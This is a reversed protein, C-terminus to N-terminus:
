FSSGSLLGPPINGAGVVLNRERMGQTICGPGVTDWAQVNWFKLTPYLVPEIKAVLFESHM